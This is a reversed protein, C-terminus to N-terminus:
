ECLTRMEQMTQDEIQIADAGARELARACHRVNLAALVRIRTSLSPSTVAERITATHQAIEALSIFWSGCGGFLIRPRRRPSILRSRLGPRSIRAALANRRGLCSCGRRRPWSEACRNKGTNLSLANWVPSPIRRRSCYVVSPNQRKKSMFDPALRNTAPSRTSKNTYPPLLM